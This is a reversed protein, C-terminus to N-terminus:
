EGAASRVQHKVSKQKLLAGGGGGCPSRQSMFLDPDSIAREIQTLADDLDRYACLNRNTGLSIRPPNQSHYLVILRCSETFDLEHEQWSLDRVPPGNEVAAMWASTELPFESAVVIEEPFNAVAAMRASTEFFIVYRCSELAARLHSALGEDTTEKPLNERDIWVTYGRSRALVTMEHAETDYTGWRYSIFFDHNEM